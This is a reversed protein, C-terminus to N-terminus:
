DASLLEEMRLEIEMATKRDKGFIIYAFNNQRLVNASAIILGEKTAASFLIPQLRNFVDSFTHARTPLVYSNHSLIYRQRLFKEGVLQKATHYVHTGGTRRVNSETILLQKQKTYVCDVDYYGRYGAQSYINGLVTGHAVLPKTITSPLATHFIEIGKFVGTDSVRMGCYYLLQPTGQQDIIFECNPNGGGITQDIELYEEVVVPFQAWYPDKELFILLQQHCRTYNKDLDGPRFIRVGAGAHAKNTKLVVANKKVYQSAAVSAINPLGQVIRGGAMWPKSQSSLQDTAQRIGSKSGFYNSTWSNPLSPSEPTSVKVGRERLTAVLELFQTSTSYSKLNLTVNRGITTLTEMLSQDAMIDRCVEGSHHRPIMVEVQTNHFVTQYYKLFDRDAAAPLIVVNPQNTPLTLLDRDSLFANEEIEHKRETPHMAQIFDWIDESINAVYVEILKHM